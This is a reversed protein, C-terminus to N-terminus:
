KIENILIANKVQWVPCSHPVVKGCHKQTLGHRHSGGCMVRAAYSESIYNLPAVQTTGEIYLLACGSALVNWSPFSVLVHPLRFDEDLGYPLCCQEARVHVVQKCLVAKHIARGCGHKTLVIYVM